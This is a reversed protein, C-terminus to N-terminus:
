TEIREWILLLNDDKVTSKKGKISKPRHIKVVDFNRGYRSTLDFRLYDLSQICVFDPYPNEMYVYRAGNRHELVMGDEIELTNM